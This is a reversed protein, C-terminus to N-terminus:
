AVQKLRSIFQDFVYMSDEPGPAAEPHYQVSFIPLSTHRLGEVTGDNLNRHTVALPLERLSEEAVAYGHNQATIYVRGSALEKVPHNSGRHGYKLKFTDAGLALALIQHGLCIGFLPIKGILQRVSAVVWPIDKPDGPGNSLLVADPNRELVAGADFHAPVVTVRCRRKQLSRIINRKAGLDVVVVHPGNGPITYPASCTVESVLDGLPGKVWQGSLDPINEERTYIYGRMVGRDRLHRTLARTDVGALGAIGQAQLYAELSQEQRWNSPTSCAERVILARVQIEQSEAYDGTIGYNGILPYTMVVIQGRYSPDTLIEQYGTMSTNFVVEGWTERRAGILKGSFRTGDELILGAPM